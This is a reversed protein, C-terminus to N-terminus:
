ILMVILRRMIGNSLECTYEYIERMQCIRLQALKNRAERIEKKRQEISNAM